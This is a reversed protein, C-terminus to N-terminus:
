LELTPHLRLILADLSDSSGDIFDRLSAAVEAFKKAPLEGVFARDVFLYCKKGDIDYAVANIPYTIKGVMSKGLYHSGVLKVRSKIGPKPGDILAKPNYTIRVSTSFEDRTNRKRDAGFKSFLQKAIQTSSSTHAISSSQSMLTVKM